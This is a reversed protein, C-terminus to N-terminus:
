ERSVHKLDIKLDRIYAYQAPYFLKFDNRTNNKSVYINEVAYNKGISVCGIDNNLSVNVEDADTIVLVINALEDASLILKNAKIINHEKLIQIYAKLVDIENIAEDKVVEQNDKQEEYSVNVQEQVPEIYPVASGDNQIIKISEDTTPISDIVDNQIDNYDPQIERTIQKKPIPKYRIGKPPNNLVSSGGTNVNVNNIVSPSITTKERRASINLM